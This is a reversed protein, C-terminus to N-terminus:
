GYRHGEAITNGVYRGVDVPNVEVMSPAHATLRVSLALLQTTLGLSTQVTIGVAVTGVGDELEEVTVALALIDNEHSRHFPPVLSRSYGAQPLLLLARVEETQGVKDGWIRCTITM